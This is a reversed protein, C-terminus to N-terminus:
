LHDHPQAQARKSGELIIIILQFRGGKCREDEQLMGEGKLTHREM